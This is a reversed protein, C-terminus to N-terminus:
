QKPNLQNGASSGPSTGYSLPLLNLPTEKWDARTFILNFVSISPSNKTFGETFACFYTKTLERVKEEDSKYKLHLLEHILSARARNGAYSVLTDKGYKRSFTSCFKFTKPYIRIKGRFRNCRGAITFGNKRPAPFFEIKVSNITSQEIKETKLMNNLFEQFPHKRLAKLTFRSYRCYFHYHNVPNPENEAAIKIKSYLAQSQRYM